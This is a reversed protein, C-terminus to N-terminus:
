VRAGGGAAHAPAPTHPPAPSRWPSSCPLLSGRRRGAGRRVVAREGRRWSRASGQEGRGQLAVADAQVVAGRRGQLDGADRLAEALLCPPHGPPHTTCHVASLAAQSVGRWSMSHRFGAGQRGHKAARGQERPAAATRSTGAGALSQCRGCSSGRAASADCGAGALPLPRSARALPCHAPPHRPAVSPM